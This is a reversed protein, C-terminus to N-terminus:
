NFRDEDVVLPLEVTQTFAFVSRRKGTVSDYHQELLLSKTRGFLEDFYKEAESKTAFEQRIAGIMVNAAAGAVMKRPLNFQAAVKALAEFLKREAEPGSKFIPDLPNHGELM